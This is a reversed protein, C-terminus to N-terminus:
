FNFAYGVMMKTGSMNTSLDRGDYELEQHPAYQSVSDSAPTGTSSTVINREIPLYRWGAELVIAHMGWCIEVGLGILYGLNSGEANVTFTDEKIVTKQSGYAVGTEFFLKVDQSELPYLKFHAEVTYGSTKYEYAGDSEDQTFYSPRLQFGLMGARWQIFPGFEYAKTLDSTGNATRANARARLTNMHTQESNVFGGMAGVSMSGAGGGGSRAWTFTPLTLFAFSVLVLILKM